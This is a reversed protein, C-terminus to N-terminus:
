FLNYTSMLTIDKKDVARKSTCTCVSVDNAIKGITIQQDQVECLGTHAVSLKPFKIGLISTVHTAQQYICHKYNDGGRQDRGSYTIKLWQCSSPIENAISDIADKHPLSIFVDWLYYRYRIISECSEFDLQLAKLSEFGEFYGRPKGRMEPARKLDRLNLTLHLHVCKVFSWSKAAKRSPEEFLTNIGDTGHAHVSLKELHPFDRERPKTAIRLLHNLIHSRRETSFTSVSLSTLSQASYRNRRRLLESFAPRIHDRVSFTMERGDEYYLESIRKWAKLVGQVFVHPHRRKSPRTRAPMIARQRPLPLLFREKAFQQMCKCTRSMASAEVIHLFALITAGVSTPIANIHTPTSAYTIRLRKSRCLVFSYTDQSLGKERESVNVQM